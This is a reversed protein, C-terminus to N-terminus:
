LKGLVCCSLHLRPMDQHNAPLFLMVGPNAPEVGGSKEVSLATGGSWCSLKAMYM